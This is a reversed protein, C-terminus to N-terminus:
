INKKNLIIEIDIKYRDLSFRLKFCKVFISDLSPLYSIFFLAELYKDSQRCTNISQCAAIQEEEVNELQDCNM